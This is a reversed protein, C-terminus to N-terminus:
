AYGTRRFYEGRIFNIKWWARSWPFHVILIGEVFITSLKKGVTMKECRKIMYFKELIEPDQSHKIKELLRRKEDQRTEKNELTVWFKIKM